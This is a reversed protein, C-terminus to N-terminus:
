KSTLFILAHVNPVFNCYVNRTHYCIIQSHTHVCQQRQWTIHKPTLIVGMHFSQIKIHKMYAIKNEGLGETKIIKASIRSNKLILIEGHCYDHIYLKPLYTVNAVVCSRTDQRCKKLNPHCYYVYHLIVSSSIIVKM